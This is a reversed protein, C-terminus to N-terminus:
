LLFCVAKKGSHGVPVLCCLMKDMLNMANILSPISAYYNTLKGSNEIQSNTLSNIEGVGSYHNTKHRTDFGHNIKDFYQDANSFWNSAIRNKAVKHKGGLAMKMNPFVENREWRDM